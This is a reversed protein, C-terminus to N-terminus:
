SFNGAKGALVRYARETVDQLREQAQMHARTNRTARVFMRTYVNKQFMQFLTAYTM